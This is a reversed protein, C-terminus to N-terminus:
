RSSLASPTQPDAAPTTPTPVMAQRREADLGARNRLDTDVQGGDLDRKAQRIVERPPADDQGAMQDREHPLPPAAGRDPRNALDGSSVPGRGVQTSAQHPQPPTRRPAGDDDLPARDDSETLRNMAGHSCAEPGAVMPRPGGVRYSFATGPKAIPVRQAPGALGSHSLASLRKAGAGIGVPLCRPWAAPM